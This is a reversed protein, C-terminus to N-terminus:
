RVPCARRTSDLQYAGDQRLSDLRPDLKLWVPRLSHDEFARELWDLAQAKEGRGAHLVAISYPTVYSKRAREELSRLLRRAEEVGGGQTLAHGM